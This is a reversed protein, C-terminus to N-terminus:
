FTKKGFNAIGKKNTVNAQALRAAFPKSLLKNFEQTAIYNVQDNKEAFDTTDVGTLNKLDAKTASNSLNLDIKVNEELSKLKPFYKSAQVINKIQGVILCTIIDKGILM